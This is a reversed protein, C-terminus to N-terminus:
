PLRAVAVKAACEFIFTEIFVMMSAAPHNLSLANLFYVFFFFTCKPLEIVAMLAITFKPSWSTEVCTQELLCNITRQKGTWAWMTM